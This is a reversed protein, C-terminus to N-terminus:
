QHHGSLVQLCQEEGVATLADQKFHAGLHEVMQMFKRHTEEVMIFHTFHHGAHLIIDVVQFRQYGLINDIEGGIGDRQDADGNHHQEHVPLSANIVSLTTGASTIAMSM